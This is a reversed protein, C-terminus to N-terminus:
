DVVDEYILKDHQSYLEATNDVYRRVRGSASLYLTSLSEKFGEDRSPNIYKHTVHGSKLPVKGEFVLASVTRSQNLKAEITHHLIAAYCYVEEALEYADILPRGCYISNTKDVEFDGHALAGKIPIKDQFSSGLFAHATALIRELDADTDSDTYFLVTDSFLVSKAFVDEAQEQLSTIGGLLNQTRSKANVSDFASVSNSLLQLLRVLEQHPNRYAFDKFGMVDFYAIYRAM